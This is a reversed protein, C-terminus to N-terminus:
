RLRRAPRKAKRGPIRSFGLLGKGAEARWGSLLDAQGFGKDALQELRATAAQDLGKELGPCGQAALRLAQRRLLPPLGALGDLMLSRPGKRAQKLSAQALQQMLEAHEQLLRAASAMHQGAGPWAQELLPLARKRLLNRRLKTDQNSADERWAQGQAKLWAELEPRAFGLLPRLWAVGPHAKLRVCPRLGALGELGAGRCLHMLLTEAQDGGHHGLLIFQAKRKAAARALAAQRAERARAEMGPGAKLRLKLATFPIGKAKCVRRVLAVDRASSEGRLGHDVSAACLRFGLREEAAKALLLLAMSDAGGSVAALLRRGKLKPACAALGAEFRALMDLSGM